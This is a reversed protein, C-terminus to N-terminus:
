RHICIGAYGVVASTDGTVDGSTAYAVLHAGQAGLLNAATLAVTAPIVGCMTIGEAHVTDYLRRPDLSIAADIATRDRARALSDPEYHTMDSSAVIGIPENVEGILAALAEGLRVCVAASLHKLCVPLVQIDPRRHHLFPLQVEISHERSHAREDLSAEPFRQLLRDALDLDVDEAGLPTAWQQHPAISVDAGAGTHNPGLVVVRRPVDLHGFLRGAVGGSYVYGAHPAICALLQHRDQDTAILRDLQRSLEQPAAPYFAGAVATARVSTTM